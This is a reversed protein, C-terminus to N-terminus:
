TCISPADSYRRPNASFSARRLRHHPSARTPPVSLEKKLMREQGGADRAQKYRGETAGRAAARKVRDM